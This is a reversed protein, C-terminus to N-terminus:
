ISRIRFPCCSVKPMTAMGPSAARPMPSASSGIWHMTTACRIGASRIPSAKLNGKADYSYVSKQGAAGIDNYLRNKLDYVRQQTRQLRDSPDFIDEKIRNGMADLTYQIVNGLGDAIETLRHAADYYYRLVSGDATTTRILQGASDYDFTVSEANPGGANVTRVRIRGRADFSSTTAVGNADTVRMPQGDVDYADFTTVHGAANTTTRVNGRCPVCPDARDYYTYTTVDAVDTRPGDVTLAQGFANYTM